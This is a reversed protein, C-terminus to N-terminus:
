EGRETEDLEFYFIQKIVSEDAWTVHKQLKRDRGNGVTEIAAAYGSKDMSVLSRHPQDTSADNEIAMSVRSPPASLSSEGAEFAM